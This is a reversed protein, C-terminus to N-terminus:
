NTAARKPAKVYERMVQEFLEYQQAGEIAWKGAVIFTPVASINLMRAEDMQAEVKAQLTREALLPRLKNVDLGASAALELVVEINGIDKADKWYADFGARHFADAKGHEIAYDQAELALRSYSTHDRFKMTLGAENAMDM